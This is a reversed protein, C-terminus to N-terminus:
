EEGHWIGRHELMWLQSDMKTDGDQPHLREYNGDPLLQRAQVNDELHVALIHDRIAERIRPDEITFLQEVRRDLNRPMLDASGLFVEEQGGNKFYYIRAHELFRGVVSTVTINDSIGPM